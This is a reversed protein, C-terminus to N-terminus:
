RVLASLSIEVVWRAAEVPHVMVAEAVETTAATDTAIMANRHLVAAGMAEEMAEAAAKTATSRRHLGHLGQPRHSVRIGAIAVVVAAVDATAGLAAERVVSSSGAIPM